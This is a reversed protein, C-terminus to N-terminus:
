KYDSPKHEADYSKPNSFFRKQELVYSTGSKRVTIIPLGMQETWTAM